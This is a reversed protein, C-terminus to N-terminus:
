NNYSANLFRVPIIVIKKKFMLSTIVFVPLVLFALDFMQTVAMNIDIIIASSLQCLSCVFIFYFASSQVISFYYIRFLACVFGVFSSYIVAGLLGFYIRGEIYFPTNPGVITMSSANPVRLNEVMINGLAEKYPQIRLFGLIPNLIRSPYDWLTFHSFYDINIPNYFFLASDASYLLRVFFALLAKDLSDNEKILVTFFVSLVCLALIPLFWKYKKLFSLEQVFAPHYLVFGAAIVIRMLSSKSGELATFLSIVFLIVLYRKLKKDLYLYVFATSIFTGVGWNVKRFVGYGEKFNAVKAETPADSLLTFGKNYAVFLNSTIYIVLLVYSVLSVLNTDKFYYINNIANDKIIKVNYRKYAYMFGLCMAIQCAFFHIVDSLEPVIQTILVSAFSTTFIYIFLPDIISYIYKSLIFYYISFFIIASGVLTPLLSYNLEM